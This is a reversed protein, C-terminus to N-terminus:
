LATGEKKHPWENDGLPVPVGARHPMSRYLRDYDGLATDLSFWRAAASRAKTARDPARALRALETAAAEFDGNPEVHVGAGEDQLVRAVDGVDNAVVPLGSALYEGMKTPASARKAFTSRIFSIGAVGLRLLGPVRQRTASRVVLEQAVGASELVGRLVDCNDRTVVLFRPNSVKTRFALYFRAMEDALYWTGMSGVYVLAETGEFAAALEADPAVDPRFADLDACTPIVFIPARREDKYKYEERLHVRANQTLVTIAAARRLCAREVQKLAKYAASQDNLTGTDVKEDFWFGRTDFLFPIRFATSLALAVGATAYSRAHLLDARTALAQLMVTGTLSLPNVLSYPRRLFPLSTWHVGDEIPERYRAAVGPKEFTVLDMQHGRRALGAVYPLIQSRGLPDELGDLSLFMSRRAGNEM